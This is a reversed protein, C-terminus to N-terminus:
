PNSGPAMGAPAPSVFMRSRTAATRPSTTMSDAGPRPVRTLAAMGSATAVAAPCSVQGDGAADALTCRLRPFSVVHVCTDRDVPDGGAGGLVDCALGVVFAPHEPDEPRVDAEIGVLEDAAAVRQDRDRAPLGGLLGVARAHGGPRPHGLM